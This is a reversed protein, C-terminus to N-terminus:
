DMADILNELLAINKQYKQILRDRTEKDLKMLREYSMNHAMDKKKVARALSNNAVRTLYDLSSEGKLRTIAIVAEVIYNPFARYLDHVTLDTDEITDHLVAVIKEDQSDLMNMVAIPHEIYPRGIKDLQGAHAETAMRIAENLLNEETTSKQKLMEIAQRLESCGTQESGKTTKESIGFKCDCRNALSGYACLSKRLAELGDILKETKIYSM